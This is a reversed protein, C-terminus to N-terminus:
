ERGWDKWLSRLILAALVTFVIFGNISPIPEPGEAELGGVSAIAALLCILFATLRARTWRERNVVRM